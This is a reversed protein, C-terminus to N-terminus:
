YGKAIYDFTRNVNNGAANKFQITFGTGSKATIVYFDGQTGNDMGIGVAPTAFFPVPFVVSYPSTSVINNQAMVRDPMDITVSCHTVAINALRNTTTLELKFQFARAIYDAISFRAWEGWAGTGFSTGSTDVDAINDVNSILDFFSLITSPDATTTRVFLNATTFPEANGDITSADDLNDISDWFYNTLFATVRLDATCRSTYTAGLDVYTNAFNYVATTIKVGDDYDFDNILDVDAYNEFLAAGEIALGSPSSSVFCDTKIGSFTPHETQTNVVNLDLMTPITTSIAAATVSEQGTSDVFKAFYTGTRGDVAVQTIRGHVQVLDVASAYAGGSTLASWKIRTYGGYLVDLDTPENWSLNLTGTNATANFGTVNAPPAALGFVMIQSSATRSLKNVISIATIEVTYLGALADNLTVLPQPQQPLNIWNNSNVRYKIAYRVARESHIWGINVQVKVTQRDLYLKETITINKPPDPPLTLESIRRPSLTIDKEVNAFKGPNYALANVIYTSQEQANEKIGVVRFLQTQVSSSQLVWVANVAPTTSFANTTYTKTNADGALVAREETTGDPLIITLTPSAGLERYSDVTISTTTAATIRGGQRTGTRVPDAIGIVMGPRVIVGSELGVEFEVIESEFKDTFLMWKGLRHAQSQSTTGIAKIEKTIVGYKAIGDVDTVYEYATQRQVMDYWQVIVLTARVKLAAGRYTFKGEVVNAATFIYSTTTPADQVLELQGAAWYGMCRFVSLLDNIATYAESLSDININLQFRPETGGRGNSVLENCYQSAAYFSYRDLQNSDLFEGFGYRTNTLLDWLCWAPDACWQAAGFTGTWVGAYTVRGNTQDVTTANNPLQVKIGRILYSRNPISTIQTSLLRFAQLASNPYALKANTVEVYSALHFANQLKISSSDPTLRTVRINVPFAGAIPVVYSKEYLTNTKGSITDEIVTQYAGANYQREIRLSVTTGVIDGMETQEQLASVGIRVWVEDITTDVITKIVPGSSIKVPINVAVENRVDDFGDIYTQIQTGSRQEHRSIAINRSGDANEVPTDDLFVSKLGDKLGYIEGEGILDVVQLVSDSLLNNPQETPRYVEVVPPSDSNQVIIVQPDPSPPPPPQPPPPADSSGAIIINLNDEIM